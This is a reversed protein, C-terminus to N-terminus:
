ALSRSVGCHCKPCGQPFAELSLRMPFGGPFAEQSLRLPFGCFGQDVRLYARCQQLLEPPFRVHMGGSSVLVSEM